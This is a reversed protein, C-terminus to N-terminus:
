QEPICFNVDVRIIEGKFKSLLNDIMTCHLQGKAVQNREDLLSEESKQIRASYYPVYLDQHSAFFVLRSFWELGPQLSLKYLFTEKPDESDVMTLQEISTCKKMANIFWLGADILASTSYTYGIHPSSLTILAHFRSKYKELRPLASRIIIGGM